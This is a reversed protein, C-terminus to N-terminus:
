KVGYLSFSSYQAFNGGLASLEITSIANTVMFVGSNFDVYGSGNQDYGGISRVTKYKNTNTYDLIDAVGAGMYSVTDSNRPLYIYTSNATGAAAVSAGDGNLNHTAYHSATTDSNFGIRVYYAASTNRTIYRLQLHTYDAPISSITITAAATSLTTSAIHYMSGTPAYLHGSIQSAMIGLIPTM